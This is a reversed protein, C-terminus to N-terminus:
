NNRARKERSILVMQTADTDITVPQGGEPTFLTSADPLQIKFIARDYPLDAPYTIFNQIPISQTAYFTTDGFQYQYNVILFFFGIPAWISEVGTQEGEQDTLCALEYANPSIQLLEWQSVNSIIPKYIFVHTDETIITPSTYEVRATITVAYRQEDLSVNNNFEGASIFTLVGPSHLRKNGAQKSFLWQKFVEPRWTKSLGSRITTVDPNRRIDLVSSYDRYPDQNYSVFLTGQAHLFNNNNNFTITIESIRWAEYFNRLRTAPILITGLDVSQAKSSPTYPVNARVVETANVKAKTYRLIPRMDRMIQYRFTGQHKNAGHVASIIGKEIPDKPPLRTDLMPQANEAGDVNLVDAARHNSDSNDPIKANTTELGAASTDSNVKLM